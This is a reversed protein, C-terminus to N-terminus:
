IDDCWLNQENLVLCTSMVTYQQCSVAYNVLNHGFLFQGKKGTHYALPCQTCKGMNTLDSSLKSVLHVLM